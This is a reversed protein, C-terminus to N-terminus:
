GGGAGAASRGRAIVGANVYVAHTDADQKRAASLEVDSLERLPEYDFGIDPDVEGWLDIQICKLVRDLPDDFLHEQM